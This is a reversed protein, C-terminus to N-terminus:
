FFIIFLPYALKRLKRTTIFSSMSVTVLFITSISVTVEPLEIKILLMIFGALSVIFLLIELNMTLSKSKM